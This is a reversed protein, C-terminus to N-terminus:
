RGPCEPSPPPTTRPIPIRWTAAQPPNLKTAATLARVASACGTGGVGGGNAAGPDGAGPGVGAPGGAGPLAADGLAGAGDLAVGSGDPTGDGPGLGAGGPLGM